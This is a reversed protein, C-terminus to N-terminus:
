DGKFGHTLAAAVPRHPAEGTRVQGHDPRKPSDTGQQVEEGSVRSDMTKIEAPITIPLGPQPSWRRIYAVIDDVDQSTLDVLGQTGHGFSRMATGTRGRVITAQLFGDTAASLFGENNLDPAWASLRGPEDMEGKGDIGHCGACNSEYLLRGRELDWPVVFRHTVGTQPPEFEWLRLLAVLDNLQDSSLSLISQASKKVPRMETGDRGLAMTAMLYGDSAVRLFGSNALAPGSSGEGYDGHCAACSVGYWLRGLEPRGSPRKAVSVREEGSLRELSRLYVVIDDIQRERLDVTGQEGKLFGRMPTGTKGHSVWEHLMADSASALFLPNNLQPGVGGEADDGHCGVCTGAYLFGGTDWDGTIMDDSLERSPEVQWTRVFMILSAVDASSLHHWAPM